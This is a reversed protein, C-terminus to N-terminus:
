NRPSFSNQHELYGNHHNVCFKIGVVKSSILFPVCKLFSVVKVKVINNIIFLFISM